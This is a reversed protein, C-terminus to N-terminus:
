HGDKWGSQEAQLALSEERRDAEIQWLWRGSWGEEDSHLVM